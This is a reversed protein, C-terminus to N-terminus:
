QAVSLNDFALSPSFYSLASRLVYRLAWPRLLEGCIARNREFKTCLKM